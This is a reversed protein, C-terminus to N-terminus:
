RLHSKALEVKTYVALVFVIGRFFYYFGLRACTKSDSAPLLIQMSLTTDRDRWIISKEGPPNKWLLQSVFIGSSHTTGWANYFHENGWLHIDQLSGAELAAAALEKGKAGLVRKWRTCSVIDRSKGPVCAPRSEARVSEGRSRQKNRSIPARLPRLM